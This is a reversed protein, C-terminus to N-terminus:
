TGLCLQRRAFRHTAATVGGSSLSDVLPVSAQALLRVMFAPWPLLPSLRAPLVVQAFEPPLEKVGIVNTQLVMARRRRPGSKYMGKGRVFRAVATIDILGQQTKFAGLTHERDERVTV